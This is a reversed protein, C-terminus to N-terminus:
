KKLSSKIIAGLISFVSYLVISIIWGMFGVIITTLLTSQTSVLNNFRDDANQLGPLNMNIGFNFISSLITLIYTVGGGIVGVLMGSLAGQKAAKELNNKIGALQAAYYGTGMPVLIWAFCAIPCILCNVCPIMGLIRIVIMVGAGILGAKLWPKNLM